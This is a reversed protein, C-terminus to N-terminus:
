RLRVNAIPNIGLFFAPLPAVRLVLALGSSVRM